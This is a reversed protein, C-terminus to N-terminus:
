GINKLKLFKLFVIMKHTNQLENLKIKKLLPAFIIKVCEKGNETFNNYEIQTRGFNVGSLFRMVNKIIPTVSNDDKNTSSDSTTIISISSDINSSDSTIPVLDVNNYINVLKEGLAVCFDNVVTKIINTDMLWSPYNNLHKQMFLKIKETKPINKELLRYFLRFPDEIHTALLQTIKKDGKAFADIFDILSQNLNGPDFKDRPDYLGDKYPHVKISIKDLMKKIIDFDFPDRSQHYSFFSRAFMYVYKNYQNLRVKMTTIPLELKSYNDSDLVAIEFLAKEDILIPCKTQYLIFTKARPVLNYKKAIGDLHTRYDDTIKQKSYVVFDWDKILELELFENFVAEFKKDNNRFKDRVMKLVNLGLANGGKIYVDLHENEVIDKIFLYFKKTENRIDGMCQDIYKTECENSCSIYSKYKGNIDEKCIDKYPQEPHCSYRSGGNLSISPQNSNVLSAILIYHVKNAKYIERYKM